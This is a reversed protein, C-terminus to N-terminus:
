EVSMIWANNFLELERVGSREKRADEIFEYKSLYVYFSGSKSSYGINTVYGQSRLLKKYSEANKVMKFVGVVLYNNKVLELPHSSKKAEIKVEAGPAEKKVEEPTEKSATKPTTLVKVTEPSSDESTKDVPNDNNLAQKTAEAEKKTEIKKPTKDSVEKLKKQMAPKRIM